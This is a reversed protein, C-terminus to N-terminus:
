VGVAVRHPQMLQEAVTRFKLMEAPDTSDYKSRVLLMVASRVADDQPLSATNCYSRAEAESAELLSQLLVDDDDHAIRLDRKIEDIMLVSM